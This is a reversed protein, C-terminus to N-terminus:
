DKFVKSARFVKHVLPELIELTAKTAKLVLQELQGQPERFARNGKHDQPEQLALPDRLELGM